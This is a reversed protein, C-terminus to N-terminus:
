SAAAEIWATLGTIALGAMWDDWCSENILDGPCSSYLKRYGLGSSIQWKQQATAVGGGFAALCFALWDKPKPVEDALKAAYGVNRGAFANKVKALDALKPRHKKWRMEIEVRTVPCDGYPPDLALQRFYDRREYLKLRLPGRTNKSISAPPKLLPKKLEYLYVSEPQGGAGVFVMRKGPKPVHAILDIPSAGILDIAPDVRSVRFDPLMKEFVIPLADDFASTLKVLGAAQAKSASFEYKVSWVGFDPTPKRFITLRARNLPQDPDYQIDFVVKAKEGTWASTVPVLTEGAKVSKAWNKLDTDIKKYITKTGEGTTDPTLLHENLVEAILEISDPFPVTVLVARDGYQMKKAILESPPQPTPQEPPSTLSYVPTGGTKIQVAM